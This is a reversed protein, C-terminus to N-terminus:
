SGAPRRIGPLRRLLDRVRGDIQSVIERVTEVDQGSPDDLTLDEYSKGPRTV